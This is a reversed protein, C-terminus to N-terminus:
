AGGATTASVAIGAVSCEQPDGDAIAALNLTITRSNSTAIVTAISRLYNPASVPPIGTAFASSRSASAAARRFQRPRRATTLLLLLPAQIPVRAVTSRRSRPLDHPPACARLPGPTAERRYGPVQRSLRTVGRM